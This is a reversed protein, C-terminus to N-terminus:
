SSERRELALGLLLSGSDQVLYGSHPSGANPWAPSCGVVTLRM